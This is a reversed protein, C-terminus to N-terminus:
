QCSAINAKPKVEAIKNGYIDYEFCTRRTENRGVDTISIGKVLLSDEQGASAYEYQTIVEDASSTCGNGSPNSSKCFSERELVWIPTNTRVLNGSSNKIYPYLQKYFYRNEAKVSNVSPKTVKSVRGSNCHYTFDTRNGKRDQVWSPKGRTNMVGCTNEYDASFSQVEGDSSTRTSLILNGYDDYEFNDVKDNYRSLGESMVSGGGFNYQISDIRGRNDYTGSIGRAEDRFGIVRSSWHNVVQLVPSTSSNYTGAYKYQQPFYTYTRLNGKVNSTYVVGKMFVQCDKDTHNFTCHYTNTYKYKRTPSNKSSTDIIETIRSVNFSNPCEERGEGTSCFREHKFTKVTKDPFTITTNGPSSIDVWNYSVKPWDYTFTCKAALESCYDYARNFATVSTPRIWEYYTDTNSSNYPFSSENFNYKYHLQYGASSSVSQIRHIKSSGYLAEKFNIDYELGTPYILKTAIAQRRYSPTPGSVEEFHMSVRSDFEIIVGKSSQYKWIFSNIKEVVGGDTLHYQNNADKGLYGSESINGLNIRIKPISSSDSQRLYVGGSFNDGFLTLHNNFSILRHELVMEGSGISVGLENISINGSTINVGNQDTLSYEPPGPITM